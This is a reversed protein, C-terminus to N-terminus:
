EMATPPVISSLPGPLRVFSSRAGARGIEITTNEFRLRHTGRAGASPVTGEYDCEVRLTQLGGAGAPTTVKKTTLKLPIRTGDVSLVLGDVYKGAMRELYAELEAGSTSGDGDVDAARLEQFAPIEAMDVIYRLSVREFGVDLRAFHNVTFNGLPHTLTATAFSVNFIFAALIMAAVRRRAAAHRM